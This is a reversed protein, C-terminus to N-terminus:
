SDLLFPRYSLSRADGASAIKPRAGVALPDLVPPVAQQPLLLRIGDDIRHRDFAAGVLLRLM